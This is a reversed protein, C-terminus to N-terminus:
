ESVLWVMGLACKMEEREYTTPGSQSKAGVTAYATACFAASNIKASAQALGLRTFYVSSASKRRTCMNVAGTPHTITIVKTDEVFM